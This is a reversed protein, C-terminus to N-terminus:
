DASTRRPRRGCDLLSSTSLSRDECSWWGGGSTDAAASAGLASAFARRFEYLSVGRSRGLLHDDDVHTSHSCDLRRLVQICGNRRFIAALLFKPSRPLVQTANRLSHARLLLQKNKSSEFNRVSAM